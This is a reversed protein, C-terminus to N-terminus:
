AFCWNFRKRDDMVQWMVDTLKSAYEDDHRSYGLGHVFEHAAIALLRNRETLLFRKKFSKSESSDQRVVQAPNLYYVRGYDGNEYQAESDEDFCFGIAFEAEKEFMRHLELVLRGWIRALKRSYGSFSEHDPMYYDPVKLDTENKVVFEESIQQVPVGVVADGSEYGGSSCAASFVGVSGSVWVLEGGGDSGESGGGSSVVGVPVASSVPRSVDVLNRVNLSSQVRHKFKAGGFHQYKAKKEKLAKRKDTSLEMIFNDLAQRHAYVLGDRNSTLVEVSTGNLEVIVCRDMDTYQHFMPIGNIRVILRNEFSKNTYVKGFSLERRPSGKRLGCEFVEGNITIVGDWQAFACFRRAASVLNGVEDGPMVVSTTTGHVYGCNEALDYQAGCGNVLLEGTRIYYSNHTFAILEKAKGFGGV